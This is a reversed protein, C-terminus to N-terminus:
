GKKEGGVGKKSRIECHATAAAAAATEYRHQNGKGEELINDNGRTLLSLYVASSEAWVAAWGAKGFQQVVIKWKLSKANKDGSRKQAIERPFTAGFKDNKKM